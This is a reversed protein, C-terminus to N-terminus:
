KKVKGLEAKRAAENATRQEPTLVTTKVSYAQQKKVAAAKEDAQKGPNAIVPPQQKAEPHILKGKNPGETYIENAANVKKTVSGTQKISSKSVPAAVIKQGTAADIDGAHLGKPTAVVNPSTNGANSKAQPTISIDGTGTSPPAQTTVAASTNVNTGSKTALDQQQAALTDSLLLLILAGAFCKFIPKMNYQKFAPPPPM